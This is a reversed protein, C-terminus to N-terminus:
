RMINYNANKQRSRLDLNKSLMACYLDACVLPGFPLRKLCIEVPDMVLAMESTHKFNNSVHTFCLTLSDNSYNVERRFSSLNKLRAM